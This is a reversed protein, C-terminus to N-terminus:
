NKGRMHAKFERVMLIIDAIMVTSLGIGLGIVIVGWMMAVEGKGM